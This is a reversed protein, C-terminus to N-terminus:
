YESIHTKNKSHENNQNQLRIRKNAKQDECVECFIKNSNGLQLSFFFPPDVRKRIFERKYWLSLTKHLHDITDKECIYNTYIYAFM